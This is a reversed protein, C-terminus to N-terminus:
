KSQVQHLLIKEAIERAYYELLELEDKSFCPTTPMVATALIRECSGLYEQVEKRVSPLLSM